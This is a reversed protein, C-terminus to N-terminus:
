SVRAKGGPFRRLFNPAGLDLLGTCSGWCGGAGVLFGNVTRLEEALAEVLVRKTM